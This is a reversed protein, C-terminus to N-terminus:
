CAVNKRTEIPESVSFIFEVKYGMMREAVSLQSYFTLMHYRSFVSVCTYAAIM